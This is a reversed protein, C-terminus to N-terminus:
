VFHRVLSGLLGIARTGAAVQEPARTVSAVVAEVGEVGRDAQRAGVFVKRTVWAFLDSIADRWTRASLLAAYLTLLCVSWNFLRWMRVTWRWPVGLFLWAGVFVVFSGSLILVVAVASLWPGVATCMGTWMTSAYYFGLVVSAVQAPLLCLRLWTFACVWVIWKWASNFYVGLGTVFANDLVRQTMHRAGESVRVQVDKVRDNLDPLFGLDLLRGPEWSRVAAYVRDMYPGWIPLDREWQMVAEVVDSPDEDRTEILDASFALRHLFEADQVASWPMWKLYEGVHEVVYGLQANNHIIKDCVMRVVPDHYLYRYSLAKALLLRQAEVKFNAVKPEGVQVFLNTLVAIPNRVLRNAVYQTSCFLVDKSQKYIEATVGVGVSRLYDVLRRAEGEALNVKSDDGEFSADVRAM